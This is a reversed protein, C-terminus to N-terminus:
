SDPYGDFHYKVPKDSNWGDFDSQMTCLIGAKNMIQVLKLEAMRDDDNELVRADEQYARTWFMGHEPFRYNAYFDFITKFNKWSSPYQPLDLIKKAESLDIDRLVEVTSCLHTPYAFKKLYVINNIDGDNRTKEMEDLLAHVYTSKQFFYALNFDPPIRYALCSLAYLFCKRCKICWKQTLRECMYINPLYEPFSGALCKIAVGANVGYNFNKIRTRRGSLTSMARALYVMKEPRVNGFPISAGARTPLHFHGADYGHSFQDFRGEQVIAAMIGPYLAINPAKGIDRSIVNVHFNSTVYEFGFGKDEMFKQTESFIARKAAVKEPDADWVLRLLTTNSPGYIEGHLAASLLSDKGGGYFLAYKNQNRSKRKKPKKDTLFKEPVAVKKDLSHYALLDFVLEKNAKDPLTVEFGDPNTAVFCPVVINLFIFAASNIDISVENEFEIDLRNHTFAPNVQASTKWELSVSRTNSCFNLLTLQKM